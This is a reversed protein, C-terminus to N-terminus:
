YKQLFNPVKSPENLHLRVCLGSKKTLKSPNWPTEWCKQRLQVLFTTYYWQSYNQKLYVMVQDSPGFEGTNCSSVNRFYINLLGWWSLIKISILLFPVNQAGPSNTFSTKSRKENNEIQDTNSNSTM